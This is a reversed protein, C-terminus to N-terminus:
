ETADARAEEFSELLEARLKYFCGLNAKYLLKLRRQGTENVVEEGCRILDDLQRVTETIAAELRPTVLRPASSM